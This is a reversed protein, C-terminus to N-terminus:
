QTVLFSQSIISILSNSPMIASADLATFSFASPAASLAL